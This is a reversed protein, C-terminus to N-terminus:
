GKTSSYPTYPPQITSSFTEHHSPSSEQARLAPLLSCAHLGLPRSLCVAHIAARSASQRASWRSCFVGRVSLGFGLTQPKTGQIQSYATENKRIGCWSVKLVVMFGGYREVLPQIMYHCRFDADAQMDAREEPTLSAPDVAPNIGILMSMHIAAANLDNLRGRNYKTHSFV